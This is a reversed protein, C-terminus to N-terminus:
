NRRSQNSVTYEMGPSDDPRAKFGRKEYFDRKGKACFLQIDRIGAENCKSVLRALIETGIGQGQFTPDTILDYIMAHVVGDSVVRGFGVLREGEYATIVCWSNLVAASLEQPSLRYEQNWGTSLFLAWFSEPSCLATRYELAM